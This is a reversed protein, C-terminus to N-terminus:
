AVLWVQVKFNLCTKVPVQIGISPHPSTPWVPSNTEDKDTFLKSKDERKELDPFASFTNLKSFYFAQNALTMTRDYLFLINFNVM